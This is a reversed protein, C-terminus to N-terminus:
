RWFKIKSTKSLEATSSQLTVLQRPKPHGAEEVTRPQTKFAYLLALHVGLSQRRPKLLQTTGDM